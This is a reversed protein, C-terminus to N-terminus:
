SDRVDARQQLDPLGDHVCGAVVTIEFAHPELAGNLQKGIPHSTPYSQCSAARSRMGAARETSRGRVTFGGQAPPFPRVSRSNPSRM